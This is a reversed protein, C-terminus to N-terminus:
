YQAEIWWGRDGALVLWAHNLDDVLQFRNVRLPNDWWHQRVPWPGAWSVIRRRRGTSPRWWRPIGSLEGRTDVTVTAGDETTVTAPRARRFVTAPPPGPLAGPWPRDLGRQDPAPLAEGWPRLLRREHLMRGGGVACVQVGAYGLEHQLTLMTHTIHEDPREGWLGQAHHSAPTPSEAHVEIMSVTDVLLEQDSEADLQTDTVLDELQWRVREVLDRATFPWAHRWVREHRVETSTVVTVRIEHCVLSASTLRATLDVSAPDCAALLAATDNTPHDLVVRVTLDDPIAHTRLVPTDRGTALEHIRLGPAGFRAHVDSRPLEALAGLTRIGMRRLLDSMEPADVEACATSVPLCALFTQSEHPPLTIVPREPTTAQTVQTAAFLGDAVGLRVDPLDLEALQDLVLELVRDESGYFRAAGAVRMAAIGPRVLHVHPIVHQLALLIPAFMREDLEPDHPLVTLGPCRVQAERLRLGVTVSEAAAEPSVAVVKGKAILALLPPTDGQSRHQALISWDPVRVVVVRAPAPTAPLSRAPM